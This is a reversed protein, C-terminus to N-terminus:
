DLIGFETLTVADSVDYDGIRIRRLATLYAGTGLREGIDEGLTRIYTGSSVHCRIRLKPYDYSLVEAEYITVKRRPMEVEEGKRALKYARQGNIKVASFRPLQQSIEGVFSQVVKKVETLSPRADSKQEGAGVDDSAGVGAGAGGAGARATIEGEPDGTTSTFGLRVEAEYVKDLKLFEQCKKTNKGTMLILLGTAFPDLTGTHGVKIKRGAEESLVRRVRAVVGFSSMGAPKDVLIMRDFM